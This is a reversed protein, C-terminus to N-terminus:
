EEAIANGREPLAGRPDGPRPIEDMLFASQGLALEALQCEFRAPIPDRQGCLPDLRSQLPERVYGRAQDGHAAVPHAIRDNAFPDLGAFAHM